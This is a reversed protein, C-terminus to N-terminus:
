GTTPASGPRASWSASGRADSDVKAALAGPAVSNPFQESFKTEFEALMDRSTSVIRNDDVYVSVITWGGNEDSRKYVRRDVICQTFGLDALFKSYKEGWIM